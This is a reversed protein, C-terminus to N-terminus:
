DRPPVIGNASAMTMVQVKVREVNEALCTVDVVLSMLLRQTFGHADDEGDDAGVVVTSKRTNKNSMLAARKM